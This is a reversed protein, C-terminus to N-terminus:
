FGGGTAGFAGLVQQVDVEFADPPDTITGELEDITMRLALEDVNEPVPEDAEDAFQLFDVELQTLAGDKVWADIIIEGDRPLEGVAPLDSQGAASSPLKRLLESYDNYVERLPLTAVLHSGAQETGEDTVKASKTLSDVLDDFAKQQELTPATDGGTMSKGVESFGKLALWEGDVAPELFALGQASAQAAVQDLAAADQGFAEAVGRVDSRAYFDQGIVRVDLADVGDLDILMESAGGTSVESGQVSSLTMSSGLILSADESDLTDGEDEALAQLSEPTSQLTFTTSIAKTDELRRVSDVLVDKADAGSESLDTGGCGAAITCVVTLCLLLRQM